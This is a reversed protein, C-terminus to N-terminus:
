KLDEMIKKAIPVDAPLLPYKLLSDPDVWKYDDHVRLCIDGSIVEVVFALLRISGQPYRYISEAFFKKTKAKIGLEEFLERQLCEEPTENEEVKGGPFEWGGAFKEDPARRAIFIKNSKILIAATVDKM